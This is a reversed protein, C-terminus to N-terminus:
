PKIPESTIGFHMIYNDIMSLNPTFKKGLHSPWFVYKLVQGTEVHSVPQYAWPSSYRKADNKEFCLHSGTNTTQLWICGNYWYASDIRPYFEHSPKISCVYPQVLMIRRHKCKNFHKDALNVFTNGLLIQLKRLNKLLPVDRNSEWGYNTEIASGSNALEKVDAILSKRIEGEIPLVGTFVTDPFINYANNMCINISFNLAHRHKIISM